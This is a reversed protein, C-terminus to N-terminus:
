VKGAALLTLEDLHRGYRESYAQDVVRPAMAHGARVPEIKFTFDSESKYHADLISEQDYTLRGTYTMRYLYLEHGLEAVHGIRALTPFAAALDEPLIPHGTWVILHRSPHSTTGSSAPIPTTSKEM